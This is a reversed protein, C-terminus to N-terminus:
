DYEIEYFPFLNWHPEPSLTPFIWLPSLAVDLSGMWARYIGFCIGGGFGVVHETYKGPLGQIQPSPEIADMVPDAPFTLLGNLGALLSNVDARAGAAPLGLAAATALAIAIRASRAFLIRIRDRMRADGITM